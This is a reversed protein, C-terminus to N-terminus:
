VLVRTADNRPALPDRSHAGSSLSLSAIWVRLPAPSALLSAVEIVYASRREQADILLRNSSTSESSVLRTHYQRQCDPRATDYPFKSVDNPAFRLLGPRLFTHNSRLARLSPLAPPTHESNQPEPKQQAHLMREFGIVDRGHGADSGAAAM